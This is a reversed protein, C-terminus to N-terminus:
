NSDNKKLKEGLLGVKEVFNFYVIVKPLFNLHPINTNKNHFNGVHKPSLRDRLQKLRM